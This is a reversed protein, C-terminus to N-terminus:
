MIKEEEVEVDMVYPKVDEDGSSDFDSGSNDNEEIPLVNLRELAQDTLQEKEWYERELKKVLEVQSKWEDDKIKYIEKLALRETECESKSVSKESARQKVLNLINDVPNLDCYYPPLRLVEHGLEKLIGEVVHLKPQYLKILNYLQAKLMNGEFPIEHRQLWDMMDQRNSYFSPTDDPISSNYPATIIIIANASLYPVITNKLWTNFTKINIESNQHTDCILKAEPILCSRDDGKLLVFRKEPTKNQDVVETSTSSSQQWDKRMTYQAYLGTEDLYMIPKADTGSEDNQRLRHLYKAIWLKIDSREVWVMKNDQCHICKFGLKEILVQGFYEKSCQLGLEERAAALIKSLTPMEKRETPFNTIINRLAVLQSDQFIIKKKRKKRGPSPLESLKSGSADAHRGERKVRIITRECYGTAAAARKIVKDVPYQFGLNNKESEFFQIVNYIVEKTQCNIKKKKPM